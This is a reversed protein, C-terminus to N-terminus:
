AAASTPARFKKFPLSKIHRGFYNGISDAGVFDAYVQPEVNPYHYIAGASRLFTVALTKREPSYGIAAIQSSKVPLLNIPQYQEESYPQPEVFTKPM